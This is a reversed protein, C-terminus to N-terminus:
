PGKGQDGPLWRAGIRELAGQVLTVVDTRVNDLRGNKLRSFEVTWDPTAVGYCELTRHFLKAVFVDAGVVVPALIASKEGGCANEADDVEQEIRRMIEYTKSQGPSLAVTPQAGAANSNAEALRTAADDLVACVSGECGKGFPMGTGTSQVSMIRAAFGLDIACPPTWDGSGESWISIAENVSPVLLEEDMVAPTGQVSGFRRDKSCAGGDEGADDVNVDVSRAVGRTVKFYVDRPCSQRGQPVEAVYLREHPSVEAIGVEDGDVSAQAVEDVLAPDVTEVMAFRKARRLWEAATYRFRDRPFLVIGSSPETSFRDLWEAPRDNSKRASAAEILPRLLPISRECASPSADLQAIRREYTRRLCDDTRSGASMGHMDGQTCLVDRARLWKRQEAVLASRRDAARAVAAKMAAALRVDLRGLDESGCIVREITTTAVACDFSPASFATAFYASSLCVITGVSFLQGRERMFIAKKSM